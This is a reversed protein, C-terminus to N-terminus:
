KGFIEDIVEKINERNVAQEYILEVDLDPLEIEQSDTGKEWRPEDKRDQELWFNYHDNFYLNREPIFIEEIVQTMGHTWELIGGSVEIKYKIARM